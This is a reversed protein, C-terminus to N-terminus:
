ILIDLWALRTPMRWEVHGVSSAIL